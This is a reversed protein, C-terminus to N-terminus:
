EENFIYTNVYFNLQYWLEIRRMDGDFGSIYFPGGYGDKEYKRDLFIRIIYEVADIDFAYDDYDNLGLNYMMEWFWIYTRDGYDPDHMIDEECARALGILAELVSCPGRKDCRLGSEDSYLERLQLGDEARNGDKELTWTFPEYYLFSLLKQYSRAEDSDPFIIDSLWKLYNM